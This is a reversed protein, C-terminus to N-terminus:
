DKSGPWDGEGGIGKYRLLEVCLGEDPSGKWCDQRVENENAGGGGRRERRTVRTRRKEREERKKGRKTRVRHGVGVPRKRKKARLRVGQRLKAMRKGINCGKQSGVLKRGKM